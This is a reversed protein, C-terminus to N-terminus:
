KNQKLKHSLSSLDGALVTVTINTNMLDKIQLQSSLIRFFIEWVINCKCKTQISSIPYFSPNPLYNMQKSLLKFPLSKSPFSKFLDILRKIKNIIFDRRNHFESLCLLFINNRKEKGKGGLCAVM